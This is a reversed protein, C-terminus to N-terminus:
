MPGEGSGSSEFGCLKGLIRKLIIRGDIGLDGKLNELLFKYM